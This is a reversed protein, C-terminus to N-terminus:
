GQTALIRAAAQPTLYTRSKLALRMAHFGFPAERKLAGFTLANHCFTNILRPIGGSRAHLFGVTTADLVTEKVGAIHELRFRIYDAVEDKSMARIQIPEIHQTALAFSPSSAAADAMLSPGANLILAFRQPDTEKALLEIQRLLNADNGELGDVVLIVGKNHTQKTHSLLTALRIRDSTTNAVQVSEDRCIRQLLSSGFLLSPDITLVRFRGRTQALMECAFSKGVGSDGLLIQLGSNAHLGATLDGVVQSYPGGDWYHEAQRIDSFPYARFGYRDRYSTETTYDATHTAVVYLPSPRSGLAPNPQPSLNTNDIERPQQTGGARDASAKPASVVLSESPHNPMNLSLKASSSSRDSPLAIAPKQSPRHSTPLPPPVSGRPRPPPVSGRPRPPPVSGRPRPPPMPVSPRSSRVRLQDAIDTLYRHLEETSPRDCAKKAMSHRILNALDAHIDPVFDRVDPIAQGCHARLYGVLDSAKYPSHGVLLRFFACGLGYVDSAPTMTGDGWQEPSMYAPTGEIQGSVGRGISESGNVQAALGFDAIKLRHQKTLLLNQPKLDRHCIGLNAAFRLADAAELYREVAYDQQLRGGRMRAYDRLTMGSVYEMAIFRHQDLEGVQFVQVVNPHIIRAASRAERLFREFRETDTEDDGKPILKLAVKRKLVDDEALYVAGMAGKGLLRLVQFSGIRQGIWHSDDFAALSPM